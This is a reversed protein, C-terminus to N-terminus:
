VRSKSNSDSSKANNNVATELVIKIIIGLVAAIVVVVIDVVDVDGVLM